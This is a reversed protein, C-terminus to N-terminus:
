KSDEEDSVERDMWTVKEIVEVGRGDPKLCLNM